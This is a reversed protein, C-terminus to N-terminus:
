KIYIIVRAATQTAPVPRSSSTAREYRLALYLGEEDDDDGEGVVEVPVDLIALVKAWGHVMNEMHVDAQTYYGIAACDGQM